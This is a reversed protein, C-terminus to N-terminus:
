PFLYLKDTLFALYDLDALYNKDWGHSKGCLKAYVEALNDGDLFVDAAFLNVVVAVMKRGEGLKNATDILQQRAKEILNGAIQKTVTEVYDAISNTAPQFKDVYLIETAGNVPFKQAKTQLILTKVEIFWRQGDRMATLDCLGKGRLFALQAFVADKALANALRFVGRASEFGTMEFVDFNFDAQVKLQEKSLGFTKMAKAFLEELRCMVEPKEFHCLLAFDPQEALDDAVQKDSMNEVCRRLFFDCLPYKSLEKLLRVKLAARLAFYVRGFNPRYSIEM